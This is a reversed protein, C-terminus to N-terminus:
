VKKAAEATIPNLTEAFADCSEDTTRVAERRRAEASFVRLATTDNPSLVADLDERGTGPEDLNDVLDIGRDEDGRDSTTTSESPQARPPETIEM